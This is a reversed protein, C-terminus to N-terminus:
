GGGIKLERKIIIIESKFLIKQPQSRINEIKELTFFCYKSDGSAVRNSHLTVPIILLAELVVYAFIASPCEAVLGSRYEM